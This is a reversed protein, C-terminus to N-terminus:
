HYANICTFSVKFNHYPVNNYGKLMVTVFSRLETVVHETIQSTTETALGRPQLLTACVTGTSLDKFTNAPTALVFLRVLIISTLREAAVELNSSAVAHPYLDDEVGLADWPQNAIQSARVLHRRLESYHLQRGESSMKMTM